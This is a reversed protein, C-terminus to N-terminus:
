NKSNFHFGWDLTSRKLWSQKWNNSFMFRDKERNMITRAVKNKGNRDRKNNVKRM